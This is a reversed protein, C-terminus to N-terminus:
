IKNKVKLYIGMVFLYFMYVELKNVFNLSLDFKNKILSNSLSINILKSNYLKKFVFKKKKLNIFFIAAIDFYKILKTLKLFSRSFLLNNSIPLYNYNTEFDVFLLNSGTSLLNSILFIIKKFNYRSIIKDFFSYNNNTDIVKFFVFENKSFVTLFNKKLVRNFNKNLLFNFFKLYFYLNYIM